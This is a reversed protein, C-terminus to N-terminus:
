IAGPHLLPSVIAVRLTLYHSTFLEAYSCVPLGEM